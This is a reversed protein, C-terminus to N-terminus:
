LIGSSILFLKIEISCYLRNRKTNMKDTTSDKFKMYMRNSKFPDFYM